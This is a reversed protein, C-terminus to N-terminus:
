IYLNYFYRLVLYFFLLPIFRISHRKGSLNAHANLMAFAYANSIPCYKM